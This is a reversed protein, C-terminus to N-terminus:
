EEPPHGENADLAHRLLQRVALFSLGAGVADSRALLVRAGTRQRVRSAFEHWLRSKGQGPPGVVLVARPVADERCERWTGELLDIEKDRGIFPTVVGLLRRPVPADAAAGRLAFAGDHELVDFDSGLLVATSPCARVHNDETTDDLLGLAR